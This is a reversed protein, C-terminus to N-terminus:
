FSSNILHKNNIDIFLSSVIAYIVYLLLNTDPCPQPLGWYEWEFPVRCCYKNHSWKDYILNKTTDWFLM